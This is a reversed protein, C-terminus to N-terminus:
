MNKDTQIPLNCTVMHCNCNPLQDTMKLQDPIVHFRKAYSPNNKTINDFGSKFRLFVDELIYIDATTHSILELLSDSWCIGLCCSHYNDLFFIERSYMGSHVSDHITESQHLTIFPLVQKECCHENAKFQMPVNGYVGYGYGNNYAANCIIITNIKSYAIRKYKISFYSLTICNGDYSYRHIASLVVFLWLIFLVISLSACVITWYNIKRCLIFVIIAGVVSYLDALMIKLPTFLPIRRIYSKM